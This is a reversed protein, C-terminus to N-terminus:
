KGVKFRTKPLYMKFRLAINASYNLFNTKTITEVSSADSRYFTYHTTIVSGPIYTFQQYVNVSFWRNVNVEFNLSPGFGFAAKPAGESYTGLMGGDQLMLEDKPKVDFFAAGFHIGPQLSIKKNNNLVDYQYSLSAYPLLTFSENININSSSRHLESGYSFALNEFRLTAYHKKIQFGVFFQGQFFSSTRNYNRILPDTSTHNGLYHTTSVPLNISGGLGFGAYFYPQNLYSTLQASKLM